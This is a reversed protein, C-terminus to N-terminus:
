ARFYIWMSDYLGVYYSTYFQSMGVTTANNSYWIEEIMIDSTEMNVISLYGRSVFM